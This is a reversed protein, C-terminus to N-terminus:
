QCPLLLTTLATGTLKPFHINCIKGNGLDVIATANDDIGSLYAQGGPGVIGLERGSVTDTVPSGFGPATGDALSQQM